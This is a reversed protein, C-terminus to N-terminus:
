YTSTSGPAVNVNGGVATGIINSTADYLTANLTLTQPANATSTASVRVVLSGSNDIQFTVNSPDIRAHGSGTQRVQVSAATLAGGTAAQPLKVTDGCATVVLMALGALM